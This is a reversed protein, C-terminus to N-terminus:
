ICRARHAGIRGQDIVQVQRNHHAAIRIQPINERTTPRRNASRGIRLVVQLIDINLIWRTRKLNRHIRGVNGTIPNRNAPVARILIKGQNASVTGQTRHGPDIKGAAAHALRNILTLRHGLRQRNGIRSRGIELRGLVQTLQLLKAPVITKVREVDLGPAMKKRDEVFADDFLGGEGFFVLVGMMFGTEAWRALGWVTAADGGPFLSPEPHLRELLQACAKSDCYIDAGIQLMPARRYGGTLETYDPKPMVMPIQVSRWPLSKLGFILRVKESYPSLDYHHLILDSMPRHDGLDPGSAPPGAGTLTIARGDLLGM